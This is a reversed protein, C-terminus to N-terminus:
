KFVRDKRAINVVRLDGEDDLPSPTKVAEAAIFIARKEAEFCERLAQDFNGEFGRMFDQTMTFTMVLSQEETLRPDFVAFTDTHSDSRVLYVNLQEITCYPSRHKPLNKLRSTTMCVVDAFM